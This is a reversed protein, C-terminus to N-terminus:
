CSAEEPKAVAMRQRCAKQGPCPMSVWRYIGAATADLALLAVCTVGLLSLEAKNM